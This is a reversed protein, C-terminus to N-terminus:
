IHYGDPLWCSKGTTPEYLLYFHFYRGPRLYGYRDVMARDEAPAERRTDQGELADPKDVALGEPLTGTACRSNRM